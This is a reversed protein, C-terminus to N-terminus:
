WLASWRPHQLMGLDAEPEGSNEWLKLPYYNSYFLNCCLQLPSTFTTSIVWILSCLIFFITAIPLKWQKTVLIQFFYRKINNFFAQNKNNKLRLFSVNHLNVILYQFINKRLSNSCYTEYGNRPRNVINLELAPTKSPLKEQPHHLSM